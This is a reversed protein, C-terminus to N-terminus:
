PCVYGNKLNHMLTNRIMSDSLSPQFKPPFYFLPKDVLMQQLTTAYYNDM